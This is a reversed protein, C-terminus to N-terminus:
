SACSFLVAGSSIIAWLHRKLLVKNYFLLAFVRRSLSPHRIMGRASDVGSEGVDNWNIKVCGIM